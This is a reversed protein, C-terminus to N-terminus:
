VLRLGGGPGAVAVTPWREALCRLAFDPDSGFPLKASDILLDAVAAPGAAGVRGEHRWEVPPGSSTTQRVDLELWRDAWCSLSFEVPSPETIAFSLELIESQVGGTRDRVRECRFAGTSRQLSRGNRRLSAVMEALFTSDFSPWYGRPTTPRAM